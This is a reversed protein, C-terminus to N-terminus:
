QSEEKLKLEEAIEDMWKEAQDWDAEWQKKTQWIKGRHEPNLSGKPIIIIEKFLGIQTVYVLDESPYDTPEKPIGTGTYIGITFIALLVAFLTLKTKM